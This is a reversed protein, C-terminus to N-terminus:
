CPQKLSQKEKVKEEIRLEKNFIQINRCYSPSKKLYM